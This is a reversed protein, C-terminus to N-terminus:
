PWYQLQVLADGYRCCRILVEAFKEPLAQLRMNEM